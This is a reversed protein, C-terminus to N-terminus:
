LYTDRLAANLYNDIKVTAYVCYDSTPAAIDNQTVTSPKEAGKLSDILTRGRVVTVAYLYRPSDTTPKIIDGTTTINNM